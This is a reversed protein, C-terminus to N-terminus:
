PVSTVVGLGAGVGRVWVFNPRPEIGPGDVARPLLVPYHDDQLM